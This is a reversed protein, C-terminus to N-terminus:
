LEKQSSNKRIDMRFRLQCLKLSNRRIKDRTVQSFLYVGVDSCSEKLYNYLAILRGRLRRKELTWSATEATNEGCHELPLRLLTLYLPSLGLTEPQLPGM